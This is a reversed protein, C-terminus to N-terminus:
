NQGIRKLCIVLRTTWFFRSEPLREMMAIAFEKIAEPHSRALDIAKALPVEKSGKKRFGAIISGIVKKHSKM